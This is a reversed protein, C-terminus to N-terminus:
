KKKKLRTHLRDNEDRLESIKNGLQEAILEKNETTKKQSVLNARLTEKERRREELSNELKVKAQQLSAVKARLKENERRLADVEDLLEHRARLLRALKPIPNLKKFDQV